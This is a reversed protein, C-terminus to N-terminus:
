VNSNTVIVRPSENVLYGADVRICMNNYNNKIIKNNVPVDGRKGKGRPSEKEDHTIMNM